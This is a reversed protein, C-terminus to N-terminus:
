EAAEIQKPEPYARAIGLAADDQRRVVENRFSEIAAGAQSTQRSNEVLLMPLWAMACRWEDIQEGTQPHMGQVHQFWSCGLQKCSAQILPCFDNVTLKV